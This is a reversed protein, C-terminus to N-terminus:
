VVDKDILEYQTLKGFYYCFLYTIYQLSYPHFDPPHPIDKLDERSDITYRTHWVPVVDDLTFSHTRGKWVLDIIEVSSQILQAVIPYELATTLLRIM